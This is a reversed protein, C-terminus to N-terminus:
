APDFHSAHRSGISIFGRFNEDIPRYRALPLIWRLNAVMLGFNADNERAIVRLTEKEPTTGNLEYVGPLEARFFSVQSNEGEIVLFNDWSEVAFGGTEESFERIMAEEPSEGPEIKGGVANLLGSQWAPKIKEILLVPGSFPDRAEPVPEFAFGCVYRIKSV